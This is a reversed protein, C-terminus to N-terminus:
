PSGGSKLIGMLLSWPSIGIDITGVEALIRGSDQGQPPLDITTDGLVIVIQPILSLQTEGEVSLEGGTAKRVQEQALAIIQSEDIFSPLVVLAVVVVAVIVGIVILLFAM